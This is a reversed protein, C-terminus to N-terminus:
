FARRRKILLEGTKQFQLRAKQFQETLNKSFGAQKKNQGRM